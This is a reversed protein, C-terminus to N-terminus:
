EVHTYNLTAVFLVRRATPAFGAPLPAVPSMSRLLTRAHAGIAESSSEVVDVTTIEGEPTISALVTAWGYILKGADRPFTSEGAAKLRGSLSDYYVNIQPDRAGSYVCITHSRDVAVSNEISRFQAQMVEYRERFRVSEADPGRAALYRPELAALDHRAQALLTCQEELLKVVSSASAESLQQPQAACSCLMGLVCLPLSLINARM